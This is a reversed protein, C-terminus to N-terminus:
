SRTQLLLADGLVLQRGCGARRPLPEDTMHALLDVSGDLATKKLVFAVLEGILLKRDGRHAVLGSRHVGVHPCRIKTMNGVLNGPIGGLTAHHGCLDLARIRRLLTMPTVRHIAFVSGILLRKATPYASVPRM